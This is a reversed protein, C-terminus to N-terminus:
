AEVEKQLDRNTAAVVRVDVQVKESGGVRQFSREQLVRLIKVQLSPDMEGIEDLFITGGNAREFSGIYRRDAGTYAGREHGFLENELLERPIAGCNLDVFKHKPRGSLVHIAKAVLEKGTGSEGQIMVTANSKAVTSILKFNEQMKHSQGVIGLFDGKGAAKREVQFVKRALHYMQSARKLSAELDDMGAPLMMFDTSGARMFSVATAVDSNETLVFIPLHEDISRIEQILSLHDVGPTASLNFVVLDPSNATIASFLEERSVVALAMGRKTLEEFLMPSFQNKEDYVFTPIGAM